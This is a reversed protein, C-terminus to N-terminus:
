KVELIDMRAESKVDAVLEKASKVEAQRQQHITIASQTKVVVGSICNLM